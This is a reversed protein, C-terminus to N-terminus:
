RGPHGGTQGNDLLETARGHISDKLKEGAQTIRAPLDAYKKEGEAPSGAALWDIYPEVEARLKESTESWDAEPEDVAIGLKWADPIATDFLDVQTSAEQVTEPGQATGGRYSVTVEWPVPIVVVQADNVDFPLGFLGSEAAGIGNPDFAAIKEEKTM